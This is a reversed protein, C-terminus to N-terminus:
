EAQKILSSRLEDYAGTEGPRAATANILKGTRDFILYRPISKVNFFETFKLTQKGNLFYHDGEMDNAAILQQWQSQSTSSICVYVFVVDENKLKERLLQSNGMEAICPKCWTAWVDLYIVKSRHKKLIDSVVADPDLKDIDNLISFSSIKNEYVRRYEQNYRELFLDKVRSPKVKKKYTDILAKITPIKQDDIVENLQRHVFKERLFRDDISLLHEFLKKTAIASEYEGIYPSLLRNGVQKSEDDNFKYATDTMKEALVRDEEILKPQSHLLYKGLDSLKTDPLAKVEGFEHKLKLYYWDIFIKYRNNNYLQPDNLKISHAKFFSNLATDVIKRKFAAYVLGTAAAYRMDADAHIRLFPETRVSAFYAANYALGARLQREVYKKIEPYASSPLSDIYGYKVIPDFETTELKDQYARAQNNIKGFNGGFKIRRTKFDETFFYEMEMDDGPRAYFLFEIMGTENIHNGYKHTQNLQLEQIGNLPITTSFNGATDMDIPIIVMKGTLLDRYQFTFKGTATPSSTNLRKINGK